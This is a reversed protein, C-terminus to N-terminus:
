KALALFGFAATVALLALTVWRSLESAFWDELASVFFRRATRPVEDNDRHTAVLRKWAEVVKSWSGFPPNAWSDDMHFYSLRCIPTQWGKQFGNGYRFVSSRRPRGKEM